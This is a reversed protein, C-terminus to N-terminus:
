TGQVLRSRSLNSTNKEVIFEWLRPIRRPVADINFCRFFARTRLVMTWSLHYSPASDGSQYWKRHFFTLCFNYSVMANQGVHNNSETPKEYVVGQFDILGLCQTHAKKHKKGM